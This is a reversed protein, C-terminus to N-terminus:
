CHNALPELGLQLALSCKSASSSDFYEYCQIHLMESSIKIFNHCQGRKQGVCIFSINTYLLDVFTGQRPSSLMATEEKIIRAQYNLDRAYGTGFLQLSHHHLQGYFATYERAAVWDGCHKCAFLVHGVKRFMTWHFRMSFSYM